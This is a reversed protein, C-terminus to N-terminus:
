GTAPLVKGPNLTDNPDLAHKIARMLDVAAAGHEDAMFAMKHLGVGHEGTCTGDMAIARHVLNANIRESEHWQDADEPDVPMLVHFNGNGVHGVITYPFSARDLETATETVCQALKSVPVCVDTTSARSGPRVQLGAFYAEHRAKWLQSRDEPLAAWEFDM